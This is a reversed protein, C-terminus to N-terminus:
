GRAFTQNRVRFASRLASRMKASHFVQREDFDEVQRQHHKPGNCRRRQTQQENQDKVISTM